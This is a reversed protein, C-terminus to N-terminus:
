GIVAPGQEGRSLSTGIMVDREFKLGQAFLVAKGLLQEITPSLERGPETYPRVSRVANAFAHVTADPEEDERYWILPEPITEITLGALAAKSFLEWDDLTTATGESFGGIREFVERRMLGNTSGYCNTFAGTAIDGGLFPRRSHEIRNVSSGLYFSVTSTIIDAGTVEAVSVFTSLASASQLLTNDDIFMLYSGKAAAIAANRAVGMDISSNYIIRCHANQKVEERAVPEGGECTGCKILIIEFNPYNQQALTTLTPHARNKREDYAFCVSVLPHLDSRYASKVHTSKESAAALSEHWTVWNRETDGYAVAPRATYAGERLVHRLRAALIDANPEFCVNAHDSPSVIEPIGGVSSAIFPVGAGICELVTNPYNDVLSPIIAVRGAARLYEMAGAQGRNAVVRWPVNWKRSRDSIYGISSRGFIQTEKGLFTVEFGGTPTQLCLEDIADCFLKLGKRIELRGFFVL